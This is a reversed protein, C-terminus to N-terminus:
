AASDRSGQAPAFRCTTPANSPSPGQQCGHLALREPAIELPSGDAEAQETRDRVVVGGVSARASQEHVSHEVVRRPAGMTGTRDPSRSSKAVM